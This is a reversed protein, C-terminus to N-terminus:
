SIKEHILGLNVLEQTDSAVYKQLKRNLKQLVKGHIRWHEEPYEYFGSTM